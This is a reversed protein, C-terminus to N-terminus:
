TNAIFKSLLNEGEEIRAKLRQCENTISAFRDLAADYDQGRLPLVAALLLILVLCRKM